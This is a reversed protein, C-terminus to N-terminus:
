GALTSTGRSDCSRQAASPSGCSVERSVAGNPSEGAPPTRRGRPSPRAQCALTFYVAKGAPTRYFGWEASLAAVLLLGRGTEADAPVDAVQPLCRSTDHVDVRLEGCFRTIDLVVAPGTEHRLANTVLESTLLEAAEPDVPVKWARIAARVQSRAEPVAAPRTALRVRRSQLDPPRTPAMTNM